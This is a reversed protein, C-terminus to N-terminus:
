TGRSDWAVPDLNWRAKDFELTADSGTYAVVVLKFYRDAPVRTLWLTLLRWAGTADSFRADGTRAPMGIPITCAADEYTQIALYATAADSPGVYDLATCRVRIEARVALGLSRGVANNGMIDGFDFGSGVSPGSQWRLVGANEFGTAATQISWGPSGTQEIVAWGSTTLFDPNVLSVPADAFTQAPQYPQSVEGQEGGIQGGNAGAGPQSTSGADGVPINPEGRYQLRNSYTFCSNPGSWQKTCDPRIRFTDGVEIPYGTPFALSAVKGAFAEVEFTRGANAGTLWECIGPVFTGDPISMSADTFTRTSEVGVGTVTGSVWLGNVVVGCPFREIKPATAADPSDASQSGFTARCTLSDREVISQRFQQFLSRLEGFFAVGDVTKMEGLTGTMLLVHGQTLDAHNVLYLKFAAYDYAGARIDAESIQPVEYEPFLSQTEANDVSFDSTTVQASSTFGVPALYSVSGDGDDYAVDVDLDTLGVVSYGARVPEIRLLHGTTTADSDLHAQLAIPITRM